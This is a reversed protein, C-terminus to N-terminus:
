LTVLTSCNRGCSSKSATNPQGTDWSSSLHKFCIAATLHSIRAPPPAGFPSNSLLRTDCDLQRRFPLAKESPTQPSIAGATGEQCRAPLIPYSLSMGQTICNMGRTMWKNEQFSWSMHCQRNLHGLSMGIDAMIVKFSRRDTRVPIISMLSFTFLMAEWTRQVNNTDNKHVDPPSINPSFLNPLPMVKNFTNGSMFKTNASAPAM